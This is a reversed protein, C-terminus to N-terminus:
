TRFLGLTQRFTLGSGPGFGLGLGVRFVRGSKCSQDLRTLLTTVAKISHDDDLSQLFDQKQTECEADWCPSHNKRLCCSIFTKAAFNITTYFDQYAHNVEISDSSLKNNLSIYRSLKGQSLELVYCAKWSCSLCAKTSHHALTSTTVKSITKSFKKSLSKQCSKTKFIKKLLSIKIFIKKSLIKRVIFFRKSIAVIARLLSDFFCFNCTSIISFILSTRSYFKLCSAIMKQFM